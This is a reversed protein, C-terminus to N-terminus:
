CEFRQTECVKACKTRSSCAVFEKRNLFGYIWSVCSFSREAECRRAPLRFRLLLAWLCAVCNKMDDNRSGLLCRLLCLYIASFCAMCLSLLLSLSLSLSSFLSLAPRMLLQQLHSSICCCCSCCNKCRRRWNGRELKRKTAMLRACVCVCVCMSVSVYIWKYPTCKRPSSICTVGKVADADADAALRCSLAIKWQRQRRKEEENKKKSEIAVSCLLPKKSISQCIVSLLWNSALAWLSVSSLYCGFILILEGASVCCPAKNM